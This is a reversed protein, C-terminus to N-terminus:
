VLADNWWDLPEGTKPDYVNAYQWQSDPCRQVAVELVGEIKQFGIAVPITLSILGPTTADISGNLPEILVGIENALVSTAEADDAENESLCFQVCVNGGRRIIEFGGTKERDVRIVDGSAVETAYLPSRIIEWEDNGLRRAPVHESGPSKSDIVEILVHDHSM